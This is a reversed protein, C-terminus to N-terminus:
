TRFKRGTTIRLAGLQKKPGVPTDPPGPDHPATDEGDVKVDLSTIEKSRDVFAALKELLKAAKVESTNEPGLAAEVQRIKAENDLRINEAEWKIKESEYFIKRADFVKKAAGLEYEQQASKAEWKTRESKHFSDRAESLKKAVRSGVEVLTVLGAGGLM